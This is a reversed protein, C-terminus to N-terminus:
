NSEEHGNTTDDAVFSGDVVGPETGASGWHHERSLAGDPWHALLGLNRVTELSNGSVHSM